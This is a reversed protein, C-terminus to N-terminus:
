SQVERAVARGLTTISVAATARRIAAHYHVVGARGLARGTASRAGPLTLVWGAPLAAIEILMARGKPSLRAAVEAPSM